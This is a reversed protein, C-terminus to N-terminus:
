RQMAKATAWTIPCSLAFRRNEEIPGSENRALHIGKQPMFDPPVAYEVDQYVPHPKKTKRGAGAM